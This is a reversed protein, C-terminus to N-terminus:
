PAQRFIAVLTGIYNSRTIPNWDELPMGPTDGKPLWGAESREAIRHIIRSGIAPSSGGVTRYAVVSGLRIGEFDHALVIHEGGRLLPLMSGTTGATTVESRGNYYNAAWIGAELLPDPSSQIHLSDVSPQVAPGQPKARRSWLVLGAVVLVVGVIVVVTM